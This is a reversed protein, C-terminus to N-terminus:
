ADPHSCLANNQLVECVAEILEQPHFPKCLTYHAGLKRAIDLFIPNQTWGGGSIVIIKLEPYLGRLERITELGDKMPMFLDTVVVDFPVCALQELAEHGSEAFGLEWDCCQAKLTRRLGALLNRDDDVLLIRLKM